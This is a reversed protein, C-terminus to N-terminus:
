ERTAKDYYDQARENQGLEYYEQDDATNAPDGLKKRVDDALWGLKVGRYDHFVPEEAGGTALRKQATKALAAGALSLSTVVLFARVPLWFKSSRLFRTM